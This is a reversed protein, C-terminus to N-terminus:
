SAESDARQQLDRAVARRCFDSKSILERAAAQEISRALSEPAYFGCLRQRDSRQDSMTTVETLHFVRAPSAPRANFARQAV